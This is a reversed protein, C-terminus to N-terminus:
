SAWRGTSWPPPPSSSCRPASSSCWWGRGCGCGEGAPSGGGKLVEVPQFSSLCYAPYAGAGLGVALVLGGLYPAASWLRAAGLTVEAGVLASFRPLAAEVLGLAVGFACAVLLVSEGLFQAAVQARRAGVAKRMGVERMRHASRATALNVFNVCAVLVVLAAIGAFLRVRDIDGSEAIGYDATSYLHVRSLPQVHYRNRAAVEDGMHRAMFAPLRTELDAARVGPRLTLYTKVPRWSHDRSWEDWVGSFGPPPSLLLAFRFTTTRPLDRLVGTVTFPQWRLPHIDNYLRLVRGVPDEEGFYLRAASQTILALVDAGRQM